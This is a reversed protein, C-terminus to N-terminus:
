VNAKTKKKVWIKTDTHGTRENQATLPDKHLPKIKQLEKTTHASEEKVTKWDRELKHEPKTVKNQGIQAKNIAAVEPNVFNMGLSKKPMGERFDQAM